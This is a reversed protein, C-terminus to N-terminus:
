GVAFQGMLRMDEHELIHCHFVYVGTFDTFKAIVTVTSWSPVNVMEQWETPGSSNYGGDSIVQFNVDHIHIPHDQGSNNEFTWKEIANLAVPADIRAPDYGRGNFEWVGNDQSIRFTRSVTAQSTPLPTFSGLTAPITSTDTVATTVDFRMLDGISDYRSNQLTVSSGVPTGSLDVVIDARQAPMLTISSKQRPATFLGSENGLQTIAAGNSLRLEYYRANSGNLVRLRIKRTGVRLYPQVAGNVLQTDGLFGTRMSSSDMSYKLTGDSNFSRDQLVVPIDNGGSPLNLSQEQSDTLLYFGALGKYVHAGTVDMAHDHYWLTRASEPNLYTYDRSAGPAIPDTPGGDSSSPVHAGHLHVNTNEPLNNVVHVKVTRGHTAKITPGPYLGNYTWVPTTHNPVISANAVSETITYYDTTADTSTPALVPPVPLAVAFPTACGSNTCGGGGGGGWGWAVNVFWAPLSLVAAVAVLRALWIYSRSM